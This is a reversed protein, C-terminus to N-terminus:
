VGDERHAQIGEVRELAASLSSLIHDQMAKEAGDEDRAAIKQLILNHEEDAQQNWDGHLSVFRCYRLAHDRLQNLIKM